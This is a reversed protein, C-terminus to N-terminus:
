TTRGDGRGRLSSTAPGAEEWRPRWRQWSSSPPRPWPSLPARCHCSRSGQHRLISGRGGRRHIGVERSPTGACGHGRCRGVEKGGATLGRAGAPLGGDSQHQSCWSCCRPAWRWCTQRRAATSTLSSCPAPQAEHSAERRRVVHGDVSVVVRRFGELGRAGVGAAGCGARRRRTRLGRWSLLVAHYFRRVM